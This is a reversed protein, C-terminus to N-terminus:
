SKEEGDNSIKDDEHTTKKRKFKNRKTKSMKRITKVPHVRGRSKMGGLAGIRSFFDEGYKARKTATGKAAGEKTGPM